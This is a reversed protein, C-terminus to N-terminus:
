NNVAWLKYGHLTQEAGDTLSGEYKSFKHKDVDVYFM